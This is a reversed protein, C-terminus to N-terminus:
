EDVVEENRQFSPVIADRYAMEQTLSAVRRGAANRIVGSYWGRQGGAAGAEYDVRLWGDWVPVDHFWLAHDLSPGLIEGGLFRPLGSSFDSMYTMAAAHVLVNGEQLDEVMRVHFRLPFHQQRDPWEAVRVDLPFRSPLPRCEDPDPMPGPPEIDLEAGDTGIRFSAAMSFLTKGNQLAVVRRASYNRGDREREVRYMVPQSSDGRRLFYGHLSHPYRDPAVTAGGALVCQAAIQGGYLPRGDHHVPFARFADRDIQEVHLIEALAVDSTLGPEIGSSRVPARTM